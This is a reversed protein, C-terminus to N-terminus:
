YRRIKPFYLAFELLPKGLLVGRENSDNDIREGSGSDLRGHRQFGNNPSNDFM